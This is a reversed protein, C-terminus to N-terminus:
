RAWCWATGAVIHVAPVMARIGVNSGNIPKQVWGELYDIGITFDVM